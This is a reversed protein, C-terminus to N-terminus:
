QTRAVLKVVAEVKSASHVKHKMEVLQWQAELNADQEVVAWGAEKQVTDLSEDSLYQLILAYLKPMDRRYDALEKRNAKMDELYDLKNLGDQDDDLGYTERDPQKPLVIYGQKILKGLNEYDLLAKKLIAEKFKMFNNSPGYRLIPIPEPEKKWDSDQRYHRRNHQRAKNNGSGGPNTNAVQQKNKKEKM